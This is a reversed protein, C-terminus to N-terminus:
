SSTPFLGLAKRIKTKMLNLAAADGAALADIQPKLITRLDAEAANKAAINVADTDSKSGDYGHKLMLRALIADYTNTKLGILDNATLGTLYENVIQDFVGQRGADGAYKDDLIWKGRKNKMGTLFNLTNLIQESDANFTPLASIIQPLMTKMLKHKAENAEDESGYEASTYYRDISSLLGEYFTRDIEKVSTGQMLTDVFYKTSEKEGTTPNIIYDTRGTMFEKYTVNKSKRSGNTYAWTEVNIHKGLRALEPDAGKMGLLNLALVNAFDTGLEIYGDRDMYTQLHSVIKDYDGRFALTSQAACIGEIDKNELFSEYSKVVNKTVQKSLFTTYKATIAKREAELADIADAQVSALAATRATNLERLLEPDTITRSVFADAGAGTTILRNYAATDLLNGSDDTKAANRVSSNYFRADAVENRRKAEMQTRLELYNNAQRDITSSFPLNPTINNQELYTGMTSMSNDLRAHSATNRLMLERNRYETRLEKTAKITPTTYLLKGHEDYVAHEKYIPTGTDDYGLLKRGETRATFKEDLLGMAQDENKKLLARRRYASYANKARWSGGSAFNFPERLKQATYEARRLAAHESTYRHFAGLPHAAIGRLISNVQGPLTGSMKLLNWALFLPVVKIAMGLILMLPAEAAAIIVWGVLSCAGFLAAFMPYFLLMQTLSKKWTNFWNSTNPLLYCVFALPSVMILVYVLAQRAAITIYAIIVSVVAALLVPLLSLFVYGLGGTAGIAFGTAIVAGSFAGVLLTYDISSSTSSAVIGTPTVTSEISAFLGRLSAGLLNALDVCLSCVIYRLNILIATLVIKPLLKKISYNSLGIGTLQSIIAILLLIVFVINTIDRFIAWIQHFPSDTASTLPSITLYEEIISYIGDTIKALFGTAPCVLWSLSGSEESCINVTGEQPDQSTPTEKANTQNNNQDQAAPTNNQANQNQAEDGDVLETLASTIPDVAYVPTSLVPAFSIFLSSFFAVFLTIFSTLKSKIVSLVSM